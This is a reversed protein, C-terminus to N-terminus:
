LKPSMLFAAGGNEPIFGNPNENRGLILNKLDKLCEKAGQYVDKFFNATHYRMNELVVGMRDDANESHQAPQSRRGQGQGQREVNGRSDM